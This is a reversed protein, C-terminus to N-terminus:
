PDSACYTSKYEFNLNIGLKAVVFVVFERKQAAYGVCIVRM